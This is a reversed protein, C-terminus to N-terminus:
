AKVDKREDKRHIEISVIELGREAAAIEYLSTLIRRALADREEETAQDLEHLWM